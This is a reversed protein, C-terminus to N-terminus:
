EKFIKFTILSKENQIRFVYLGQHLHSVDVSSNNVNTREIVKGSLDSIYVPSHEAVGKLYLTHRVPSPYSEVEASELDDSSQVRAQTGLTYVRVWDVYVTCPFQADAVISGGYTGQGGVGASLIAYMKHEFPHWEPFHNSYESKTVRKGNIVTVTKEDLGNPAVAGGDNFYHIHYIIDDAFFEMRDNYWDIGYTHFSYSGAYPDTTSVPWGGQPSDPSGSAWRSSVNGDVAKEPGLTTNENSSSFAPRNLAINSSGARYIELEYLSYGWPSGRETAYMRVYRGTGSISLDDTAGDGVTTSYISTWTIADSSVQIQYSKAFATEWKLVVRNITNSAGLDVYLWQPTPEPVQQDRYSYYSGQHWHNNADWTNNLWAKAYHVSGLNAYPISGVFEMIDIEGGQPWMLTTYGSPIEQPMMWFAFGQGQYRVDKAWVRSVIRHGPGWSAKGATNIRGSTYNRKGGRKGPITYSEKRTTIALVNGDAGSIGTKISVNEPRETAADLQGTGWDGNVGAGTEYSWKTLDLTTGNFEDSWVLTQSKSTAFSVIAVVILISKKM